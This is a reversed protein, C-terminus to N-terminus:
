NEIKIYYLEKNKSKKNAQLVRIEGFFNGDIRSKFVIGLAPLHLRKSECKNLKFMKNRSFNKIKLIHNSKFTDQIWQM